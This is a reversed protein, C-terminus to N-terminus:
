WQARVAKTVNDADGILETARYISQKLEDRAEINTISAANIEINIIASELAARATITAVAVDSIVNPNALVALDRAIEIISNTLRAVDMPPKAASKLATQLVATKAKKEGESKSPLKYAASVEGFATADAEVLNLAQNRIEALKINLENMRDERDAWKEGSTYSTVMGLLAAATAAHLAAVAGGGPAPTKDALDSLWQAMSSERLTEAGESEGSSRDLSKEATTTTKVVGGDSLVEQEDGRSSDPPLSTKRSDLKTKDNM